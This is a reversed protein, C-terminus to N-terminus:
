IFLYHKKKKKRGTPRTSDPNGRLTSALCCLQCAAKRSTWATAATVVATAKNLMWQEALLLVGSLTCLLYCVLRTGNCTYLCEIFFIGTFSQYLFTKPVLLLIKRHPLNWKTCGQKYFVKNITFMKEWLLIHERNDSFVKQITCSLYLLNRNITFLNTNVM